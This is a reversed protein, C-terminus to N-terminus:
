RMPDVQGGRVLGEAGRESTGSGIQWYGASILAPVAPIGGTGGTTGGMPVGGLGAAPIAPIVDAVGEDNVSARHYTLEGAAILEDILADADGRSINLEHELADVLEGRGDAEVGEWRTGIRDKLVQVAHEYSHTAM